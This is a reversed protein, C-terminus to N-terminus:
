DDAQTGPLSTLPECRKIFSERRAQKSLKVIEARASKLEEGRAEIAKRLDSRAAALETEIRAYEKRASELGTTLKEGDPQEEGKTLKELQAALEDVKALAKTIEEPLEVKIEDAM